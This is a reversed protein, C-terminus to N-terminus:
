ARLPPKRWRNPETRSPKLNHVMGIAGIPASPLATPQLRPPLEMTVTAAVHRQPLFAHRPSDVTSFFLDSVSCPCIVSKFVASSESAPPPRWSVPSLPRPTLSSSSPHHHHIGCLCTPSATHPYAVCASMVHLTAPVTGIQPKMARSQEAHELVINVPQQLAAPSFIFVFMDWSMSLVTCYLSHLSTHGDASM